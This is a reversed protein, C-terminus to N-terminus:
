RTTIPSGRVMTTVGPKFASKARRKKSSLPRVGVASSASFASLLQFLPFRNVSLGQPLPEVPVIARNSGDQDVLHMRAGDDLRRFPLRGLFVEGFPQISMSGQVFLRPAIREFPDRDIGGTLVRAVFQWLEGILQVGAGVGTTTPRGM